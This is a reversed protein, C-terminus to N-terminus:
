GLAANWVEFRYDGNEAPNFITIYTLVHWGIFETIQDHNFQAKNWTKRWTGTNFYIQDRCQGDLLQRQDLPVTIYNHTHGYLVYDAEGRKVRDEEFAHRVYDDIPREPFFKETLEIIKKIWSESGDPTIRLTIELMDVIDPLFVRDHQRIFPLKFFADICDVWANIIARRIAESGSKDAQTFVWLPADLLPRLNDIEKLQTSIAQVEEETIQGSSILERLTIVAQEPFKNLLEIVIADGISSANRNGMYNFSDYIDGHRAFTRYEPAFLEEPLPLSGDIGLVKGVMSLCTPYRNILWDHNGIVYQLQYDIGQTKAWTRLDQLQDLCGQNNTIIGDLVGRVLAEQEPSNEDWPRVESKLWRTSRIVDFIDGLLVLRLEKPQGEPLSSALKQINEVFIRFATPKITQGSSGDTLHVDSLFVLM